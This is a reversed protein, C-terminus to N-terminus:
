QDNYGMEKSKSMQSVGLKEAKSVKIRRHGVHQPYVSFIKTLSFLKFTIFPLVVGTPNIQLM